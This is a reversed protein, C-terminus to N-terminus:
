VAQAVWQAETLPEPERESQYTRYGLEQDVLSLRQKAVEDTSNRAVIDALKARAQRLQEDTATGLTKPRATAASAAVQPALAAATGGPQVADQRPAQAAGAENAEVASLNLGGAAPDALVRRGEPTTEPTNGYFRTVNPLVDAMRNLFRVDRDVSDEEEIPGRDFKM